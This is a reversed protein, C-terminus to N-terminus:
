RVLRPDFSFTVPLVDDAFGAPLAGFAKSHAAAEIAGQAELDFAYAGSRSVFRVNSVSGDRHILFAVDCRLSGAARPRFNLAIQRVINQLYGPFPFTTGETRVTAVDTGKDGTPGGGATTSTPPAKSVPAETAAPAPTATAPPTSARTAGKPPVKAPVGSPVKPSVAKPVAPAKPAASSTARPPAAPKATPEPASPTPAVNGIARPGSPAAILNVEYLPPMAPSQPRTALMVLAGVHLTASVVLPGTLRMGRPPVLATM